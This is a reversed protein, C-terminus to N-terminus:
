SNRKQQIRLNTEAERFKKWTYKLNPHVEYNINYEERKVGISYVDNEMINQAKKFADEHKQTDSTFITLYILATQCYFDEAANLKETKTTRDKTKQAQKVARKAYKTCEKIKRQAQEANLALM